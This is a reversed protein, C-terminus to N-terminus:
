FCRFTESVSNQQTFDAQMQLQREQVNVIITINQKQVPTIDCTVDYTNILCSTNINGRFDVDIFLTHHEMSSKVSVYKTKARAVIGGITTHLINGELTCEIRSLILGEPTLVLENPTFTLNTNLTKLKGQQQGFEDFEPSCSSLLLIVFSCFCFICSHKMIM